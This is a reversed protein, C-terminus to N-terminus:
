QEVDFETLEDKTKLPFPELLNDNNEPIINQNTNSSFLRLGNGRDGKQFNSIFGTGIRKYRLDERILTKKLFLSAPSICTGRKQFESM